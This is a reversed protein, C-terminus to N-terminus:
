DRQWKCSRAVNLAFVPQRKWRQLVILASSTLCPYNPVAIRFETRTALGFRMLSEPLDFTQFRRDSTWTIGNEIQLSGAPVVISSETVDPRDTVIDSDATAPLSQAYTLAEFVALMFAGRVGGPSLSFGM